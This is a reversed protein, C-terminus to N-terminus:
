APALEVRHMGLDALEADTFPRKANGQSRHKRGDHAPETPFQCHPCDGSPAARKRDGAPKTARKAPTGATGGMGLEALSFGYLALKTELDHKLQDRVLHKEADMKTTVISKLTALEEFSLNEVWSPADEM